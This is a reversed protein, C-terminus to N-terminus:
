IHIAKSLVEDSHGKVKVKKWEHVLTGKSNFLFTAREIGLIGIKKIVCFAKCIKSDHDSILQFPLNYQEKFKHHSKISDRSIGVIETNCKQFESYNSAFDKSETTCGPTNDKPYFYVVLNKNTISLLLDKNDITASCTTGQINELLYKYYEHRESM